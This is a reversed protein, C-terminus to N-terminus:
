ESFVFSVTHVINCYQDPSFCSIADVTRTCHNGLQEVMEAIRHIHIEIVGRQDPATMIKRDDTARFLRVARSGAPLLEIKDKCEVLSRDLLVVFVLVRVSGEDEIGVQHFGISLTDRHLRDKSASFAGSIM